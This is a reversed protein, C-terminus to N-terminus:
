LRRGAAAAGCRASSLTQPIEDPGPCALLGDFGVGPLRGALRSHIPSRVIEHVSNVGQILNRMAFAARRATAAYMARYENRLRPIYGQTAIRKWAPGRCEQM